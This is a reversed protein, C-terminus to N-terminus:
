LAKRISDGVRVAEGAQYKKGHWLAHGDSLFRPMVHVHTHFVVQGSAAGNNVGINCGDAGLGHTLAQGVKKVVIMLRLLVEDPTTLMDAYHMKPIVLTHGPNVPTIDLFALTHEDEYVKECPLEGTIIRCFICDNM